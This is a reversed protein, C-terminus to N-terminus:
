LILCSAEFGAHGVNAETPSPAGQGGARRAINACQNGSDLLLPIFSPAPESSHGREIAHKTRSM